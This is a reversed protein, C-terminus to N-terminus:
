RTQVPDAIQRPLVRRWTFVRRRGLRAGGGPEGSRCNHHESWWLWGPSIRLLALGGQTAPEAGASWARAQAARALGNRGLQYWLGLRFMAYRDGGEAKARMEKVKTEQELKETWATAEGVIAGSKVLAEITNARAAAIEDIVPVLASTPEAMTRFWERIAKEEYIKGDDAMVPRYAIRSHLSSRAISRGRRVEGEFPERPSTLPTPEAEKAAEPPPGAQTARASQHTTWTRELAGAPLRQSPSPAIWRTPSSRTRGQRLASCTM